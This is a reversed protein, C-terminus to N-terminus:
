FGCPLPVVFVVVLVLAVFVPPPVDPPTTGTTEVSVFVLVLFSWLRVVFCRRRSARSRRRCFRRPQRKQVSRGREPVFRPRHWTEGVISRPVDARPPNM